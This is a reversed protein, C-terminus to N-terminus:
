PLLEGISTDFICNTELVASLLQIYREPDSLECSFKIPMGDTNMNNKDILEHNLREDGKTLGWIPWTKGQYQVTITQFAVFEAMLQRGPGEMPPMAFSGDTGTVAEDKYTKDKWEVTRTVRADALPKQDLTIVGSVESFLSIKKSLLGITKDHENGIVAPSHQTVYRLYLMGSVLVLVVAIIIIM